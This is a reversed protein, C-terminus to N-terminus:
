IASLAIIHKELYQATSKLYCKGNSKPSNLTIQHPLNLWTTIEQPHKQVVALQGTLPSHRVLHTIYLAVHM